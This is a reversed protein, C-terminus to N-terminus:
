RKINEEQLGSMRDILAAFYASKEPYALILKSYIVQAHEYYGQDAYIQALTETYFGLDEASGAATKEPTKSIALHTFVEDTPSSVKEYEDASFFDGGPRPRTETQKLVPKAPAESRTELIRSIEKDEVKARGNGRCERLLAALVKRDTVYMSVESFNLPDTGDTRGLRRCLERRAGAYWPYIGVVGALEELSLKRIDITGEM